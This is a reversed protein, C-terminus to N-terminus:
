RFKEGEFEKWKEVVVEYDGKLNRFVEDKIDQTSVEESDRYKEIVVSVVEEVIKDIEEKSFGADLAAKTISGRIKGLSFEVRHGERKVAFRM